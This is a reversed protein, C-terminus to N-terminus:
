EEVLVLHFLSVDSLKQEQAYHEQYYYHTPELFSFHFREQQFLVM